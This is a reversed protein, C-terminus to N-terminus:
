TNIHLIKAKPFGNFNTASANSYAGINKVYLLDNIKLDPLNESTSVTDFADCTPGVVACISSPGKKFSTFHYPIHDFIVGSLSNYVGDDIYYVTKGDRLAKGIIKVFLTGSEAAIFRGPEAVVEVDKPFLRNIELNIKKALPKFNIVNSDYPVPFGGGINLLKLKYGRSHMEKFIIASADLANVYNELNLCQSGVHFSLGEVSLGMNIAKEILNPADGPEVGFKSSLEVVSGVNAVKIRCILGADPCYKKIKLLEEYNDFTMLTKNNALKILTEEPKITNAVIIRDYIFNRLYKKDKKPALDLVTKYENISAVDFGADLKILTKIIEPESNAKIAYYIGVRPLYKRLLLYQRRIIKHDIVLLPTKHKNALYKM